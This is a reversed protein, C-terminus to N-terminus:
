VGRRESSRTLEGRRRNMLLVERTTTRDQAALTM